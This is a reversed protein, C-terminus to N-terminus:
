VRVLEVRRNKAKGEETTNDALPVDPGKGVASLREAAIQKATIAQVVSQARALSLTRNHAADGTSDTHGEVRLKLAPEGQMLKVIEDVAPLSDPRIVQSDTDFNLYLAVHGDKRLANSLQAAPLAQVQQQMAKEEVTLLGLQGNDIFFSLWINTKPTRLLWQEYGPVEPDDPRNISPTGMKKWIVNTDGGNRQVFQEDAPHVRDVRTAGLAKLANEYNRHAALPSWKLEHLFFMRHLVKGEVPRLEDGAIVYVRDFEIDKETFVQKPQLEAPTALYPFPPLEKTTVPVSAVDFKGAAAPANAPATAPTAAPAASAAPAAPAGAPQAAIASADKAATPTEPAHRKCAAFGTVVFLSLVLTSLRM